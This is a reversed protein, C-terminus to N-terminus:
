ASGSNSRLREKALDFLVDDKRIEGDYRSKHLLIPIAKKMKQLKQDYDVYQDRQEILLILGLEPFDEEHIIPGTIDATYNRYLILRGGRAGRRGFSSIDGGLADNFRHEPMMKLASALEETVSDLDDSEFGYRDTFFNM